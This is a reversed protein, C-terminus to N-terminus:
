YSGMIYESGFLSSIRGSLDVGVNFLNVKFGFQIFGDVILAIFSILFTYFLWNIIEKKKDLFYFVGLAFLGFRLYGLSIRLNNFDYYKILSNFFLYLFFILFIIFFKNKFYQYEKNIQVNILFFIGVLVVSLDSLFPGTILFIPLLSILIAPFLILIKEKLIPM